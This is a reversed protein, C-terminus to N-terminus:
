GFYGYLPYLDLLEQYEPLALYATRCLDLPSDAGGEIHYQVIYGLAYLKKYLKYVVASKGVGSVGEIFIINKM